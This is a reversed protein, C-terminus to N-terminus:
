LKCPRAIAKCRWKLGVRWCSFSKNRAFAWNRYRFGIHSRVYRRWETRASVRASLNTYKKDGNVKVYYSKCTKAAAVSSVAPMAMMFAATFMGAKVIAKM